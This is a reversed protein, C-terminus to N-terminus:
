NFIEGPQPRGSGSTPPVVKTLSYAPGNVPLITLVSRSLTIEGNTYEGFGKVRVFGKWRNGAAREMQRFCQDGPKLGAGASPVIGVRTISGTQLGPNLEVEWGDTTKYTGSFSTISDTDNSKSCANATFLLALLGIKTFPKM